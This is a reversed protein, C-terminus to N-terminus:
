FSQLCQYNPASPKTPYANKLYLPFMSKVAAAKSEQCILDLTHTSFVVVTTM